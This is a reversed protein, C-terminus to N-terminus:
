KYGLTDHHKVWPYTRYFASSNKGRWKLEWSNKQTKSRSTFELGFLLEKLWKIMRRHQITLQHFCITPCSILFAMLWLMLGVSSYRDPLLGTDQQSVRSGSTWTSSLRSLGFVGASCACWCVRFVNGGGWCFSTCKWEPRVAWPVHSLIGPNGSSCQVAAMTSSMVAGTLLKLTTASRHTYSDSRCYSRQNPHWKTYFYKLLAQFWLPLSMTSWKIM